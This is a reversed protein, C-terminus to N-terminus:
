TLLPQASNQDRSNITSTGAHSHKRTLESGTLDAFYHDKYFWHRLVKQSETLSPRYHKRSRQSCVICHLEHYVSLPVLYGSGDRMELSPMGIRDMEEPLIKINIGRMLENWAADIEPSPKGAFSSQDLFAEIRRNEWEIAAEAPALHTYTLM